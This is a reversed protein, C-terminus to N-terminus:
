GINKLLNKRVGKDACSDGFWVSWLARVLEFNQITGKVEGNLSTTLGTDVNYDFVLHDGERAEETFYGVLTALDDAFASQDEFNKDIIETLAKKLKEASFSRTLDMIIQKNANLDMLDRAKNEGLQADSSVYSAIVYVDVKLFTKERLGVGTAVLTYAGDGSGLTMEDPYEKKTDPEVMALATVPVLIILLVCLRLFKSM